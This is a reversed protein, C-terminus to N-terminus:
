ARIPTAKWFYAHIGKRIYFLRFTMEVEMGVKVEEVVRDTMYSLLKGGGDIHVKCIPVPSDTESSVSDMSMTFLTGKKDSLRVEEFQDRTHCEACVSQPPYQITGCVKCKVGHLRLLRNRDRSLATPSITNFHHSLYGEKTDPNLLGRWLWYTKYDNVIQKSELHKKMGRRAANGQVKKIEDTVKFALADAGNGYGAVLILDGPKAEELAAVFLMLPYATGTNGMNNSFTDQLQTKPDFGQSKILEAARRANPAYVAAKAFDKPSLKSKELLGAIAKGTVKLYGETEGFREHSNRIFPDGDDHWVDLIEDSVSYSGELTAIVNSNGLLLAAAGDGFNRDNASLPIAQRRDAATVMVQRASGAKIADAALKLATTGGKLSTAIDATFIDSNLDAGAAVIAASQQEKYPITTSAFILGDITERNAGRLCDNAAAVAMTISDEDYNCIPKEGKAGAVIASRSLRWLPLYAGYSTIGVM